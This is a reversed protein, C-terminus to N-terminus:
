LAAKRSASTPRTGALVCKLLRQVEMESDELVGPRRTTLKASPVESSVSTTIPASPSLLMTRSKTTAFSGGPVATANLLVAM